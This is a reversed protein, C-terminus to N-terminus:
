EDIRPQSLESDRAEDIKAQVQAVFEDCRQKTDFARKPIPITLSAPLRIAVWGYKNDIARIGNWFYRSESTESKTELAEDSARVAFRGVLPEIQGQTIQTEYASAALQAIAGRRPFGWVALVVFLVLVVIITLTGVQWLYSAGLGVLGMTAYSTIHSRRRRRLGEDVFAADEIELRSFELWDQESLEYEVDM